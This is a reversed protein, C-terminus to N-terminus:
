LFFRCKDANAYGFEQGEVFRLTENLFQGRIFNVGVVDNYVLKQEGLLTLDHRLRYSWM